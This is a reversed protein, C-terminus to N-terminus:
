GSAWQTGGWWKCHFRYPRVEARGSIRVRLNLLVSKHRNGGRLHAGAHDDFEFVVQVEDERDLVAGRAIQAGENLSLQAVDAGAGHVDLAETRGSGMSRTMTSSTM